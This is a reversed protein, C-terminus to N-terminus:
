GKEFKKLNHKYFGNNNSDDYRLRYNSMPFSTRVQIKIEKDFYKEALFAKFQKGLM